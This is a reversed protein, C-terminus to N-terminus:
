LRATKIGSLREQIELLNLAGTEIVCIWCFAGAAACICALVWFAWDLGAATTLVTILQLITYDFLVSGLVSLTVGIPKLEHAFIEMVIAWAVPGFGGNFLTVFGLLATLPLWRISVISVAHRSLMFYTGLTALAIALGISSVLLIPRRGTREIFLPTSCSSLFQLVGLAITGYIPGLSANSEAFLLESNALIIDIGSWQQFLVLGLSILLAKRNGRNTLLHKLHHVTRVPAGDDGDRRKVYEQIEELESKVEETNRAGRLFMLTELARQNHGRQVLYHPTEPMYLFLTGFLIPVACCIVQLMFYSVFPGTCYVILIGLTSGIQIFCGLAGRYQDSAIEGIYLTVVLLVYGNALGIITRAVILLSISGVIMFLLWAAIYLVSSLLLALRPGKRRTIWCALLPGALGGIALATESWLKVKESLVEAFPNDERDAESLKQFTSSPWAIGCGVSVTALNAVAGALLESYRWRM